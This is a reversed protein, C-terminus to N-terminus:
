RQHISIGVFNMERDFAVRFLVDKEAFDCYLLAVGLEEGGASQGSAMADSVQRYVGAGELERLALDRFDQATSAQRQDERLLGHVADYEGRVVQLMIQTGSRIVEDASMGEPLPNGRACGTLLLLLLIAAARKRM